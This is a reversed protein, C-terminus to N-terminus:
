KETFEGFPRDLTSVKKKMLKKMEALKAAYEPNKALNNQENPDKSLDYLQDVEFLAPYDGARRIHNMDVTSWYRYVNMAMPMQEEKLHPKTQKEWKRMRNKNGGFDPVKPNRADEERIKKMREEPYRVAVYKWNPTVVAKAVNYEAMFSNEWQANEDGKLVPLFSKGDAQMEAPPTTGAIDLLTVAVDLTSVIHPLRTGPKIVGPWRIAAPVKIGGEYVSSKGMQSNDSIFVVITNDAAGTEKLTDLLSKVGFDLVRMAVADRDAYFEKGKKKGKKKGKGSDKKEGKSKSKRVTEVIEKRSPMPVDPAKELLGEETYRGVKEYDSLFDKEVDVPLHFLKTAFYLFFPKDKSQQQKLFKVASDVEWELNHHLGDVDLGPMTSVLGNNHSPAGVWDFGCDQIYQNLNANLEKLVPTVEPDTIHTGEWNKKSAFKPDRKAANHFKGVFGTTYGAAQLTTAMNPRGPELEVNVDWEAKGAPYKKLYGPMNCRSAYRGSIISYRSPICLPTTVYMREMMAGDNAISDMAPTSNVGGYLKSMHAFEVNDVVIYVINPRDPAATALGSTAFSLLLAGLINSISKM